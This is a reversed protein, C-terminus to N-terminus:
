DNKNEKTEYLYRINGSLSIRTVDSQFPIVFHQLKAPFIFFDGKEPLFSQRCAYEPLNEGYTFNVTGAGQSTTINKKNEEKLEPPVDLYMVFSLDGDHEHPPNYEKSKMYNVWLGEISYQKVAHPSLKKNLPNRVRNKNPKYWNDKLFRGYSAFINNVGNAFWVKDDHEYHLETKIDAALTHRADNKEITLKTARRLMENCFYDSVKYKMLLPGWFYYNYAPNELEEPRIENSELDANYPKINM